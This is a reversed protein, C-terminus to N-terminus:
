KLSCPAPLSPFCFFQVPISLVNRSAPSCSTEKKQLQIKTQFEHCTSVSAMIMPPLSQTVESMARNWVSVISSHERGLHSLFTPQDLVYSIRSDLSKNRYKSIREWHIIQKIHAGNFVFFHKERKKINLFLSICLIGRFQLVGPVNELERGPPPGPKERYKHACLEKAAGKWVQTWTGM